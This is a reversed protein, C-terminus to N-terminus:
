VPYGPTKAGGEAPRRLPFARSPMSQRHGHARDRIRGAPLLSLSREGAVLARPATCRKDSPNGALPPAM